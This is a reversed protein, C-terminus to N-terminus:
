KTINKHLKSGEGGRETEIKTGILNHGHTNPQPLCVIMASIFDIDLISVVAAYEIADDTIRVFYKNEHWADRTTARM